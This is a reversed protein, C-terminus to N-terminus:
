LGISSDLQRLKEYATFVKELEIKLEKRPPETTEFVRGGRMYIVRTAIAAVDPDHTAILVTTKMVKNIATILGLLTAANELDVNSTPEDLILLPPNTSLARAVAARQQMGGSMQYPYMGAAKELGVLELLIKARLLALDKKVGLAILPLAVNQEATLYTVLNYSQFLYGINRLRFKELKKEPMKGVDAGLVYVEGYTPKDLTAVINLLTTKGSGSPGMFAVVEGTSAHLSVDDLAHVEVAGNKYIKTVGRLKVAM